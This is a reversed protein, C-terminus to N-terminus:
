QKYQSITYKSIVRM